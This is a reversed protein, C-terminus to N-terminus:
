WFCCIFGMLLDSVEVCMAGGERRNVAVSWSPQVRQIGIKSVTLYPKRKGLDSPFNVSWRLNVMVRKTIPLVQRALVAVGSLFRDKGSNKWAL